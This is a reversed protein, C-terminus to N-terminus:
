TPNKNPGRHSNVTKGLFMISVLDRLKSDLVNAALTFYTFFVKIIMNLDRIYQGEALMMEHVVEDYTLAAQSNLTQLM